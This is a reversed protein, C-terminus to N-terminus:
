PGGYVRVYTEPTYQNPVFQFSNAGAPIPISNWDDGIRYVVPQGMASSGDDYYFRIGFEDSFTGPFVYGDEIEGGNVETVFTDFILFRWNQNLGIAGGYDGIDGKWILRYTGGPAGPIPGSYTTKDANSFMEALTQDNIVCECADEAAHYAAIEAMSSQAEFMVENAYESESLGMAISDGLSDSQGMALSTSMGVAKEQAECGAVQQDTPPGSFSCADKGSPDTGNVPDNHTYAYWNMGDGYGISDTQMFRGLTPSYARTKYFYMGLESVWM